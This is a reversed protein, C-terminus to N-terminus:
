RTQRKPFRGRTKVSKPKRTKRREREGADREPPEGDGRGQWGGASRGDWVLCPGDRMGLLVRGDAAAVCAIAGGTGVSARPAHAAADARWTAGRASPARRVDFVDVRRERAVILESAGVLHVGVIAEEEDGEEAAAPGSRCPGRDFLLDCLHSYAAM